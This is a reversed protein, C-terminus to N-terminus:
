LSHLLLRQVPAPAGLLSGRPPCFDRIKSQPLSPVPNAYDSVERIMNIERGWDGETVAGEWLPGQICRMDSSLVVYWVILCRHHGAPALGRGVNAVPITPPSRAPQLGVGAFFMGSPGPRNM